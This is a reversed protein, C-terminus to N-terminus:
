LCLHVNNYLTIGNIKQIGRSCRYGIFNNICFCRRVSVGFYTENACYGNPGCQICEPTSLECKGCTRKCNQDPSFGCQTNM